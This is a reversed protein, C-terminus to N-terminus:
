HHMELYSFYFSSIFFFPLFCIGFFVRVGDSKGEGGNGVDVECLSNEEENQIEEDKSSIERKRNETKRCKKRKGETTLESADYSERNRTRSPTKNFNFSSFLSSGIDSSIFNQTSYLTTQTTQTPDHPTPHPSESREIEQSKEMLFLFVILV